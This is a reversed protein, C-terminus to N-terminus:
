INTNWLWYPLCFANFFIIVKKAFAVSLLPVDKHMEHDTKIVNRM